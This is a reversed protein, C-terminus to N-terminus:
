NFLLLGAPHHLCNMIRGQDDVDRNESGGQAADVQGEKLPQSGSVVRLILSAAVALVKTGMAMTRASLRPSFGTRNAAVAPMAEQKAKRRGALVAGLAMAKPVLYKVVRSISLTPMGMSATETPMTM